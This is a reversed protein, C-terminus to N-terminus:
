PDVLRVWARASMHSKVGCRQPALEPTPKENQEHTARQHRHCHQRDKGVTVDLALEIALTLGPQLLGIASQALGDELAQQEEVGSELADWRVGDDLQCRGLSQRLRRGPRNGHELWAVQSL